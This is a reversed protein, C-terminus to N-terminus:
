LTASSSLRVQKVMRLREVPLGLMKAVEDEKPARGNALMFEKEARLMKGM